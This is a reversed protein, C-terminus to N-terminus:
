AANTMKSMNKLFETYNNALRYDFSMIKLINYTDLILCTKKQKLSAIQRQYYFLKQLFIYKTISSKKLKKETVIKSRKRKM